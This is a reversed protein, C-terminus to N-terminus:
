AKVAEPATKTDVSAAIGEFGAQMRDRIEDLASTEEQKAEADLASTEEEQEADEAELAATIIDTIDDFRSSADLDELEATIAEWTGADIEDRGTSIIDMVAAFRIIGAEQEMYAAQIKLYEALQGAKYLDAGAGDWGFEQITDNVAEVNESIFKIIDPYYISTENDARESIADEIYSSCGSYDAALYAADTGIEARIENKLTDLNIMNKKTM